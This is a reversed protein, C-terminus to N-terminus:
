LLDHASISGFLDLQPPEALLPRVAEAMAVADASDFHARQAAHSGWKEYVLFLGPTTVSAVLDITRCGPHMRSMVVYRALVGALREAAGPAARFVGVVVALEPEAGEGDPEVAGSVTRSERDNEGLGRGNEREPTVAAVSRPGIGM